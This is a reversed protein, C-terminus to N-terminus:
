RSVVARLEYMGCGKVTHKGVQIITGWVLWPLLSPWINPTAAQYTASGLYGGLKQTQNLRSSYGEVDWWTTEDSVLTVQRALALLHDREAKPLRPYAAYQQALADFRDVLRTFFPVFDATKVLKKQQIIRTPTLFDLTLRGSRAEIASQLRACAAQVADEGLPDTPAQIRATEPDFLPHVQRTLPDVAEIGVLRFHGREWRPRAKRPPQGDDPPSDIRRKKGLGQSQGMQGVALVIYPIFQAAEGFVSFSFQFREGPAFTTASDLTPQLAYPRRDAGSRTDRSLLYCVPCLAQHARDATNTQACYLTRLHSEWAGRIASGKFRNLDIPTETEVTFRLIHATFNNM